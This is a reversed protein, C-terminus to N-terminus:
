PTRIMQRIMRRKERPPRLPVSRPIKAGTPERNAASM